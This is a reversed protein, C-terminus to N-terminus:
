GARRWTTAGAPRRFADPVVTGSLPAPRFIGQERDWEVQWCLGSRGGRQRLLRIDLAPRGPAGAELPASANSRVSWRTQAASALPEAEIRLLLATAGSGEAAVVLRRSANLDLTRPMRWLEIVAVTVEPCRVVEAAARLLTLPDPMLGLVLRGPDLGLEALGPAHLRGGAREADDQRLWLVTGGGAATRLALMSAFGAAASADGAEDAFIEHLRGRGLGGQLAGDIGAHGLSVLAAAKPRPAEHAAIVRRLALVADTAHGIKNMFHELMLLGSPTM